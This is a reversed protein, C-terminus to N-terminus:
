DPLQQLRAALNAKVKVWDPKIISFLVSDRIFGDDLVMHQRLLGEEQAGLKKLAARSQKNRVDAHFEVRNMQKQEFAHQLLLLKCEPNVYSGWVEPILWTYGIILRKHMLNIDYFRTSGLLKQDAIRRVIYTAQNQNSPNCANAFWTFFKDGFAKTGTYAWIKENQAAEYLEDKFQNDIPLLKIRSGQLTQAQM